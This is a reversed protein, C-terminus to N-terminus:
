WRRRRITSTSRAAAAPITPCAAARTIFTKLLGSVEVPEGVLYRSLDMTHSLIDGLSGSGARAKELRWVRPFNPDVIWDQLYVGRYHHIDGSSARTSSRSPWRSPPCRRYNHCVMNVVGPRRSRRWCGSRTPSAHQRAAKRVPDGQGGRRRRHRDRRAFRRAHLHRRRRHRKRALVEQWSTAYEEFGLREAAEKM